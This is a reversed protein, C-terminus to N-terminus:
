KLIEIKYYDSVQNNDAQGVTVTRKNNRILQIIVDMRKQERGRLAEAEPSQPKCSEASFTLDFIDLLQKPIENKPFDFLFDETISYFRLTNNTKIIFFLTYFHLIAKKDRKPLGHEEFLKDFESEDEYTSLFDFLQGRNLKKNM